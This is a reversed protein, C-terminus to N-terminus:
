KQTPITDGAAAPTVPSTAPTSPEPPTVVVPPADIARIAQIRSKFIKIRTQLESIQELAREAFMAGASEYCDDTLANQGTRLGTVAHNLKNAIDTLIPAISASHFNIAADSREKIIQARTKKPEPM